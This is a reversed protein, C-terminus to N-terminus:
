TFHQVRTVSLSPHCVNCPAGVPVYLKGDPGFRIFKWGHARNAPFRVSLTAPAPPNALRNEIDDFRLLRSVEAVFLSGNGFAVGNPMSLGKAITYVRDARYDGNEDRLAYVKGAERSGVFLTGKPSLSLSRANPM